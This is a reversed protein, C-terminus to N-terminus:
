KLLSPTIISRTLESKAKQPIPRLLNYVESAYIEKQYLEGGNELLQATRTYIPLKSTSKMEKLIEEGNKNFGLVRLYPPNGVSDNETINILASLIIRRIRAHSYRKTKVASIIEEITNCSNVANYIRNHLGESIDPLREFDCIDMSRLKLIFGRELEKLNAPAYQNNIEQNFVKLAKTPVFQSLEGTKRIFSASAISKSSTTSDHEAGMRQVSVAKIDSKLDMITGIYEVGLINNPTKIIQALKEGAINNIAQERAAAFTIGQSLYEKLSHQFKSTRLAKACEFLLSTDDTESGFSLLECCGCSNLLGVGGRAFIQAGSVAWPLPLEIVLDAGCLLAAKARTWKDFYACDGRQVFNGSMVAIIHTAGLLEKAKEIHYKHGNHFPNYEAIIGAIKV